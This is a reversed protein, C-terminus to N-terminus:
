SEAEGDEGFPLMGGERWERLRWLMGDRRERLIALGERHAQADTKRVRDAADIEHEIAELDRLARVERDSAPPPTHHAVVDKVFRAVGERMAERQEKPSADCDIDIKTTSM